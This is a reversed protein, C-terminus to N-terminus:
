QSATFDMGAVTDRVSVLHSDFTYGKAAANMLYDRGSEVNDFTYYGFANTFAYLNTGDPAAMSVRANRIGSGSATM